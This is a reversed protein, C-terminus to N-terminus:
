RLDLSWTESVLGRGFERNPGQAVRVFGAKAYIHRAPGLTSQTWLVIRRYGAVRAFRICSEVLRTGLGTGRAAPEVLLLRLKAVTRSKAVLFVSGVREGDQEAIWARERRPDHTAMFTAVIEAVLAEFRVGWGWEQDYVAGHREIVWGMDGPRAARLRPRPRHAAATPELLGEITRMAGVLRGADADGLPRLLGGIEMRARAELPAFVRRGKPTLRLLERRRDQPSAQRAVYDRARFGALMRSLYGPDLGLLARLDVATLARGHALEYLVRAQALSFESGLHGEPLVGIRRTYFRNFHRVAAVRRARAASGAAAPTRASM